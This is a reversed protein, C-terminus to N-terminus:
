LKLLKGLAKNFGSPGVADVKHIREDQVEQWRGSPKQVLFAEDVARLLPLDNASDGLGVSRITGFARCFLTNLLTVAKGKDSGKGMVTYFKGGSVCQLGKADLLQLFQQWGGSDPDSLLLTESYDRQAARQAADRDLGTRQMIEELTLDAYGRPQIDAESRAEAITKRIHDAPEGLLIAQYGAVERIDYPALAAEEGLSFPFFGDPILIASGNEVIFPAQLHLAERYIEQEVRTKSSCFVLPIDRERLQEVTAETERYAYTEFDLLTGDLDTYIIWKAM